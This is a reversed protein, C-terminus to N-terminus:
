SYKKKLELDLIKEINENYDTPKSKNARKTDVIYRKDKNKKKNRPDFKGYKAM